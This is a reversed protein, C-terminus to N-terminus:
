NGQVGEAGRDGNESGDAEGESGSQLIEEGIARLWGGRRRLKKELAKAEKRSNAATKQLSKIGAASLARRMAEARLRMLERQRGDTTDIQYVRGCHPCSFFTVQYEEKQKKQIKIGKISIRKGCGNCLIVSAEVNGLKAM